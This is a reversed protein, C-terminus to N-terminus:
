IGIPTKKCGSICEILNKGSSNKVCNLICSITTMRSSSFLESVFAEFDDQIKAESDLNLNMTISTTNEDIIKWSEESYKKESSEMDKFIKISDLFIKKQELTLSNLEVILDNLNM